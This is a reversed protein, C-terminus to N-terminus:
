RGRNMMDEKLSSPITFFVTTGKRKGPSEAWIKGGHKGIITKCISLGLGSSEHDHRSWDAKYFEEFIHDIEEKTLGIGTDKISVTVWDGDDKADITITGGQPSYKVTNTFLNDFLEGLMLKDAKVMIREDVRNMIELGNEEFVLKNKEIITNLENLLTATDLSFITNPSNLQALKITKDVLKNLYKINHIVVELEEKLYPDQEKEQIMPLLATLPTLPSRLDHSLQGIFEDKQELLNEVEATREKVKEELEKNFTRLREHAENLKEETKKRETIDKTIAVFAVPKGSVNNIVSASLEAPFEKGDKTLLTYEINKLSGGKLTNQLNETAREQERKPFFMFAGKGIVEEKSSFGHLKLTAENCETINGQLDSVTIADPSSELINKIKEEARKRETIDRIFGINCKRGNITTATTNFDAYVITGDKRLCPIDKALTKKGKAQAEFESIVHELSEKPHLDEVKLRLLEKKSYGFIKCAAPNAYKQKKTEIDAILIGDASAEFLTRYREESEKLANEMEKRRTIDRFSVMDAAKENYEINTANVEFLLKKGDKTLVEIEYPVIKVGIMRKALNKILISKSKATVIKTSLFNKGILEERKFGTTEEVKDNIELFKGKSDVIVVPDAMSNFLRQFHRRSERLKEEARKRETIDRFIGRTAIFKGDKFWPNVNGEVYIEKGDKSVFVVEINEFAKGECVKKFLEMCHPIQDKRLIDILKLQGIENKSYGLTELWKKNVYVFNGNLDVSQILDNANEFLDRFKEESEKLKEVERKRNTIDRIIVQVGVIKRNKKLLSARGEAWGTAGDKRHFIFEIPPSAKGRIINAFIKLFKPIDQKRFAGLESFRKGVYEEESHGIMRLAATNCSIIVGKLDIIVIADSAMEVLNRYLEDSKMEYHVTDEIKQNKPAEDEVASTENEVDEPSEELTELSEYTSQIKGKLKGLKEEVRLMKIIEPEDKM